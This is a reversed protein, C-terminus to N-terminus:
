QRLILSTPTAQFGSLRNLYSMGLLSTSLGDAIVMAPVQEVRAGSVSVYDLQVRAAATRGNATTVPADYVLSSPNLGLQEADSRTLAVFSAGTDILFRIPRGNVQADAWYHGDPAKAVQADGPALSADASSIDPAKKGTIAPAAASAPAAAAVPQSADP